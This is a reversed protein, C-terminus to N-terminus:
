SSKSFKFFRFMKISLIVFQLFFKTRARAHCRFGPDFHRRAESRDHGCSEPVVQYKLKCFHYTAFEDVFFSRNQFNSFLDNSFMALSKQIIVDLIKQKKTRCLVPLPPSLPSCLAPPSAILEEKPSLQAEFM